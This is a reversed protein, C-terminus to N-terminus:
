AVAVRSAVSPEGDGTSGCHRVVISRTASAARAAKRRATYSSERKTGYKLLAVGSASSSAICM